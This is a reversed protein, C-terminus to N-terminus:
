YRGPTQRLVLAMGEETTEADLVFGELLERAEPSVALVPREEWQLVQDGDEEPAVNLELRNDNRSLRLLESENERSSDLARSLVDMATESVAVGGGEPDPVQGNPTKTM